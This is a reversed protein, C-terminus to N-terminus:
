GTPAASRWGASQPSLHGGRHVRRHDPAPPSRPLPRLTERVGGAVREEAAESRYENLINTNYFVFAGTLLFGPSPWSWGVAALGGRLRREPWPWARAFPPRPAECGSCGLVAVLFAAAAFGWYLKFWLYPAALHGYGNMDSYPIGPHGPFASLWHRVGALPLLFALSVAIATLLFGLFKHNATVQLFVALM